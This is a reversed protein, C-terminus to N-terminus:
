GTTTVRCLALVHSAHRRATKLVPDGGMMRTLEAEGTGAAGRM